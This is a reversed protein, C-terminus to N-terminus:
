GRLYVGDIIATLTGPLGFLRKAAIAQGEGRNLDWDFTLLHGIQPSGSRQDVPDAIKQGRHTGSRRTSCPRSTRSLPRDENYEQKWVQMKARADTLDEFWHM